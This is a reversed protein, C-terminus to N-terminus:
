GRDEAASATEPKKPAVAVTVLAPRLIDEGWQYGRQVVEVIVGEGADAREVREVAQHLRHNFPKGKGPIEKVGEDHLIKRADEQVLRFGKAEPGLKPELHGGLAELAEVLAILRLIFSAKAFRITEQSEKNARKVLNDYDARARLFKDRLDALEHRLRDREEELEKVRTKLSDIQSAAADKPQGAPGSTAGSPVGEGHRKM